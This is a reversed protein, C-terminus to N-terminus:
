KSNASPQTSILSIALFALLGMGTKLSEEDINFQPSHLKTIIKKSRNGTGLRYFVSPYKQSYYAFDEATMRVDLDKVNGKGLFKNALKISENTIGEDNVLVPYGKIIKVSCEVGIELAINETIKKIESHLQNRIDENVARLTGDFSVEGPIVNTAGEGSIRGFILIPPYHEDEYKKILGNLKVIIESAILLNNTRQGSLAAHGGKGKVEMYIEDASAMYVGPKFGAFGTELEPEVHQGIFIDPVHEDFIGNELIQGAGGPLLEEGPQFVFLIKGPIFEQIDKLINAAGLLCAMHVDHGCAHMCNKVVSKYFVDNEENVPLADMDARLAIVPGDGQGKIWAVIGTGAIGETYSIGMEKLRSIIYKSTKYERFSLEPNAHLYRRIQLIEDYYKQALEKIRIVLDM